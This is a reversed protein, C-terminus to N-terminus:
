IEGAILRSTNHSPDPLSLYELLIGSPLVFSGPCAKSAVEDLIPRLISLEPSPPWRLFIAAWCGVCSEVIRKLFPHNLLAVRKWGSNPRQQL